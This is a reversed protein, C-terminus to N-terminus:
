DYVADLVWADGVSDHYIECILGSACRLRYYHRDSPLAPRADAQPASTMPTHATGAERTAATGVTAATEWWRDRLHWTALVEVVRYAIGNWHFGAPLSGAHTVTIAHGYRRTM